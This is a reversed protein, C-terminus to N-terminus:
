KGFLGKVKNALEEANDGVQDMLSDLLNGASSATDVIKPVVDSLAEAAADTSVGLKDAFASISESSFMETIQEKSIPMNEGDGLWSTVMEQYEGGSAKMKEVIGSLDVGTSEVKSEVTNLLNGLADSLNDPVGDGDLDLKLKEGLNESIVKLFDM